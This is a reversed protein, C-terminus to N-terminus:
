FGALGWRKCAVLRPAFAEPDVESLRKAIVGKPFNGCCSKAITLKQTQREEGSHAKSSPFLFDEAGGLASTARFVIIEINYVASGPGSAPAPAPAPEETVAPLTHACLLTALLATPVRARAHRLDM